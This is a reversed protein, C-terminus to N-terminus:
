QTSVEYRGDVFISVTLTTWDSGEAAMIKKLEMSANMAAIAHEPVFREEEDRSSGVFRFISDIDNGVIRTRMYATRWTDPLSEAMVGCICEYLEDKSYAM